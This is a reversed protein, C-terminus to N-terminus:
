QETLKGTGGVFVAFFFSLALTEEVGAHRPRPIENDELYGAPGM